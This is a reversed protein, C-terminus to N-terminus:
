WDRCVADTMINGGCHIQQWVVATALLRKGIEQCLRQRPTLVVTYNNGYLLLLWCGTALHSHCGEAMIDIICHTQQWVVTTGLM